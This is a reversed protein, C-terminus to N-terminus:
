SSGLSRSQRSSPSPRRIALGKGLTTRPNGQGTVVATHVGAELLQSSLERYVYNATDTFASFILVKRNGPNIPAAQKDRVRRILSQLKLDHEATIPAIGAILDTIVGADHNLDRRFSEVDMDALDIKM